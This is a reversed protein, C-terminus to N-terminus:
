QNSNLLNPNARYFMANEISRVTHELAEIHYQSVRLEEQLEEDTMIEIRSKDEGEGDHKRQDESCKSLDIFYKTLDKM